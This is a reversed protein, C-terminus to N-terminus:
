RSGPLRWFRWFTDKGAARKGPWFQASLHRQDQSGANGATASHESGPSGAKPHGGPRAKDTGPQGRSIAKSAKPQHESDPGGANAQEGAAIAPHKRMPSTASCGERAGPLHRPEGGRMLPAPMGAATLFAPDHPGTGTRVGTPPM